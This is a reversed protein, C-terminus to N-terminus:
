GSESQRDDLGTRAIPSHDPSRSMADKSIVLDFVSELSAIRAIEQENAIQRRGLSTASVYESTRCIPTTLFDDCEGCSKMKPTMLLVARPNLDPTGADPVPEM